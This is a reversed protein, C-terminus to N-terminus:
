PAKVPTGVLGYANVDDIMAMVVPSPHQSADYSPLTIPSFDSTHGKHQNEVLVSVVRGKQSMWHHRLAEQGRTRLLSARNKIITGDVQNPMRAAPTGPRKSFPFVHLHTLGCAEVLDLTEAFMADTEGPFGAIFDAGIAIDPRHSKLRQCLEIAHERQHRRKMAALIANSGAQLSLHVHPMVRSEQTLMDFLREDVEMSDISSIRLRQLSPVSKLISQILAGLGGPHDQDEYSTLDVGTLIIEYIGHNVLHHVQDIVKNVALSRSRGRAVAITCFTCFHNCGNQVQLFAKVQGPSPTTLPAHEIRTQTMPGVAVADATPSFSEPNDKQNNGVLRDIEPMRQFSQPRLQVACGTAIIYADPHERRLKRITQRAQREAEQTVACTNVIIAHNLGQEQAWTRM